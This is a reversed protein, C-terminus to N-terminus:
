AQRGRGGSKARYLAADAREILGKWGDEAGLAVGVSAGVELQLGQLDFPEAAAAVVKEATAQAPLANPVGTLVIVFEDGGLRAVLDTPRVVNLLRASFAKLLLDGVPHGHTDNVPKFRDLDIYLMATSGVQSPPISRLFSEFGQRNALGTLADQESLKLLRSERQKHITVDDMIAVFGDPAGDESRRPKLTVVLNRQSGGLFMDLEITSAEGQLAREVAKMNELMEKAQLVDGLKHGVIEEKPRGLLQQFANNVFEYRGESDVVAIFTPIAEAVSSLTRRQRYLQARSRTLQSIDRMVSSYRVIEGAANRHALVMHNVQIVGAAVVVTTEGLWAGTKLVEPIIEAKYRKTTEPTNFDIFSYGSVDGDPAIDLARRVSPNMYTVRGQHDAQVVYDPTAEFIQTLVRLSEEAMKRETIDIGITFIGQVSGDPGVDPILQSETHVLHGDIWEAQEFKRREGRLAGVLHEAGVANEQEGLLEIRTRGLVAERPAKLRECNARNAFHYRGQRDLYGIRVPLNDTIDRIFQESAALRTELVKHETIDLLAGVVRVAKGANDFETDGISRVWVRRGKASTLPVELQWRRGTRIGDDFAAELEAMVEPAYFDAANERTPQFDDAVEHIRRVVPSWSVEDTRLDVVWGGVCALEEVRQLLATTARLAQETQQADPPLHTRSM